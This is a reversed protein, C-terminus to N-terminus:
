RGGSLHSMATQYGREFGTRYAKQDRYPVNPSRYEERNNVNPTRHNGIDKRAGVVGDIFGQRQMANFESPATEWDNHQQQGYDQRDGGTNGMLNSIDTQYGRRFGTQYAEKDRWPVNPSRYEDRNNVNPNRHNDVDKRAGVIGDLFGQRQVENFEGPATEWGYHQQQDHQPSQRYDYGNNNSLRATATEFGRTYGVRYAEKDRWSVSPNLYESHNVVNPTRHDRMDQRAGAIGDLFGQRQVDSFDNPATEWGYHQQEQGYEQHVSQSYGQHTSQVPASETPVSLNSMATQYGREFGRKYANQDRYPVNPNRYEERNNVNPIRHNGVDKRAGEIGDLFGQRQVANFEQPAAEWNNHLQAYEQRTGQAQSNGQGYNQIPNMGQRNGQMQPSTQSTSQAPAASQRVGQVPGNGQAAGQVPTKSPATGQSAVPAKGQAATPTTGQATGQVPVKGQTAAAPTTGQAGQVPAKGQATGQVPAKGKDAGQVKAKEQDTTTPQQQGNARAPLLGATVIFFALSPIAFKTIKM